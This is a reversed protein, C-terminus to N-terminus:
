EDSNCSMPDVCARKFLYNLPMLVLVVLVAVTTLEAGVSHTIYAYVCATM